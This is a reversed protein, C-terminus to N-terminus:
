VNKLLSSTAAAAAAEATTLGDLAAQDATIFRGSRGEELQGLDQATMSHLAAWNDTILARVNGANYRVIALYEDARTEAKDAGMAMPDSQVLADKVVTEISESFYREVGRVSLYAPLEQMVAGREGPGVADAVIREISGVLETDSLNDLQPKLRGWARQAQTEYLLREEVSGTPRALLKDVQTALVKSAKNLEEQASVLVRDVVAVPAAITPPYLRDFIEKTYKGDIFDQRAQRAAPDSWAGKLATLMQANAIVLRPKFNIPQRLPWREAIEQRIGASLEKDGRQEAVALIEMATKRNTALALKERAERRALQNAAETFSM